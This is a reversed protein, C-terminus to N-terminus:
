ALIKAQQKTVAWVYTVSTQDKGRKFAVAFKKENM